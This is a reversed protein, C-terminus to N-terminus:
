KAGGKSTVNETKVVELGGFFLVEIEDMPLWGHWGDSSTLLVAKRGGLGRSTGFVATEFTGGHERIRNKTRTSANNNAKIEIDM